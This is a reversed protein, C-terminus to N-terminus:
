SRRDRPIVQEVKELFNTMAAQLKVRVTPAPINLEGAIEAENIGGFYMFMLVYKQADTLSSVAELIKERIRLIYNLELTRIELSLRPLINNKEYNDDYAPLEYNGLKRKLEDVAKNRALTVLWTYVTATRFDFSDIRKWLILFVDELIKEAANKDGVIKIILSFLVSSYRDYLQEFAEADSGSVKLM